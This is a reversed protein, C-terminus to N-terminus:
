KVTVGAPPEFLAPAPEGRVIGTLRYTTEGSRPDAHRTLVLVKLDVSVWEEATVIIPLENGVAGAPIETTTRSGKATLGEIVRQGLDEKKPAGGRTAHESTVWTMAGASSVHAMQTAKQEAEQAAKLKLEDKTGASLHPSSGPATGKVTFAEVRGGESSIFTAVATHHVTNSGPDISFSRGTAPDSIVIARVEGDPGLTERRTRGKGDRYVRVSTRRVIRNGDALVQASETTAEASYPAGTVAKTEVSVHVGALAAKEALIKLEQQEASAKAGAEHVFVQASAAAAALTMTMTMIAITKM